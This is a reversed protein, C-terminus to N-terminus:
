KASKGGFLEKADDQPYYGTVKKLLDLDRIAAGNKSFAPVIAFEVWPAEVAHTIIECCDRVTLGYELWGGASEVEEMERELLCWGIRLAIVSIGFRRSYIRGLSEGFVKTAAYMNWPRAPMDPTVRTGRPYGETQATSAFVFRPISAQRAAEFANYTGVINNPLLQTMFDDDDRRAGLHVIAQCGKAAAALAPGDTLNATVADPEGEIPVRDFCRIEYLGKAFRRFETGIGGAAGTLLIRKM